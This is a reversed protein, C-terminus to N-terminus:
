PLLDARFYSVLAKHIPQHNKPDIAELRQDRNLWHINYVRDSVGVRSGLSKRDATFAQGVKGPKNSIPFHM